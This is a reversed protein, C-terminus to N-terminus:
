LRATEDRLNIFVLFGLILVLYFSSFRWLIMISSAVAKDVIKSYSLVFVSEAAGASGPIPVFTNVMFVFSALAIFMFVTEASLSIRLVQAVFVPIMFYIIVRLCNLGILLMLVNLKRMSKLVLQFNDAFQSVKEEADDSKVAKIKRLFRIFPISLRKFQAPFFVAHGLILFILLNILISLRFFTLLTGTDLNQQSFLFLILSILVTSGTYLFFDMWIMGLADSGKLGQKMFSYVQAFQGGTSSPTVGSMFGGVLATKLGSLYRYGQKLQRAMVMLILGYILFPALGALALPILDLLSLRSLNDFVENLQGHLSFALALATLLTMMVFVFLRNHMLKKIM